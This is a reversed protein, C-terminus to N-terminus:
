ITIKKFTEKDTIHITYKKMIVKDGQKKSIIFSNIGNKIKGIIRKTVM